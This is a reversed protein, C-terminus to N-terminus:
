GVNLSQRECLTAQFLANSRIANTFPASAIRTPSFPGSRNMPLATDGPNKSNNPM